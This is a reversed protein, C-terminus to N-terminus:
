GSGIVRALHFLTVLKPAAHVDGFGDIEAPKGFREM